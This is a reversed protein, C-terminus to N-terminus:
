HIELGQIRFVCYDCYSSCYNLFIQEFDGHMDWEQYNNMIEPVNYWLDYEEHANYWLKDDKTSM